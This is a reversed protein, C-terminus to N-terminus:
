IAARLRTKGNIKTLYNNFGSKEMSTPIRSSKAQSPVIIGNQLMYEKTSHAIHNIFFRDSNGKTKMSSYQNSLEPLSQFLQIVASNNNFASEPPEAPTSAVPVPKATDLIFARFVDEVAM